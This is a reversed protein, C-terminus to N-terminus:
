FYSRNAFLPIKKKDPISLVKTEQLAPYSLKMAELCQDESKGKCGWTQSTVATNEAVYPSYWMVSAVLFVHSIKECPEDPIKNQPSRLQFLNVNLNVASYDLSM